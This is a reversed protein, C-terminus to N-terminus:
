PIRWMQDQFYNDNSLEPDSELHTMILCNGSGVWGKRVIGDLIQCHNKQQKLCHKQIGLTEQKLVYLAVERPRYINKLAMNEIFVTSGPNRRHEEGFLFASNTDTSSDEMLQGQIFGQRGQLPPLVM